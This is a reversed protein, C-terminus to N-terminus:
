VHDAVACEPILSSMTSEPLRSVGVSIGHTFVWPECLSPEDSPNRRVDSKLQAASVFRERFFSSDLCFSNQTGSSGLQRQNPWLVTVFLYILILCVVFLYLKRVVFVLSCSVWKM